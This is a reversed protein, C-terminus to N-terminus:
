RQVQTFTGCEPCVGSVNGILDYGCHVCEGCIRRRREEDQKSRRWMRLYEFPAALLMVLVFFGHVAFPAECLACVWVPTCLLIFWSDRFTKAITM